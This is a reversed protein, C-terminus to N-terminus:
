DDKMGVEVLWGVGNLLFWVLWGFLIFPMLITLIIKLWWGSMRYFDAINYDSMMDKFMETADSRKSM